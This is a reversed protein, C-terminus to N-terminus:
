GFLSSKAPTVPQATPAPTELEPNKPKVREWPKESSTTRESQQAASRKGDPVVTGGLEQTILQTPTRNDFVAPQPKVEVHAKGMVKDYMASHVATLDTVMESISHISEQMEEVTDGSIKINIYAYQQKAPLRLEAEFKSM